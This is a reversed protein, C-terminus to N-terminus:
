QNVAQRNTGSALVRDFASQAPFSESRSCTDNMEISWKKSFADYKAIVMFKRKEEISAATAQRLKKLRDSWHWAHNGALFWYQDTGVNFKESKVIEEVSGSGQSICIVESRGISKQTKKSCKLKADNSVKVITRKRKVDRHSLDYFNKWSFNRNSTIDQNNTIKVAGDKELAQYLPLTGSLIQGKAPEVKTGGFQVAQEGIVELQGVPLVVPPLKAWYDNIVTTMQKTESQFVSSSGILVFASLFVAGLFYQVTRNM